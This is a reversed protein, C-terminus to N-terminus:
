LCDLPSSINRFPNKAIVHVSKIQVKRSDYFTNSHIALDTFFKCFLMKVSEETFFHLHDKNQRDKEIPIEVILVGNNKMVNAIDKVFNVVDTVHELTHYSLVLDFKNKEFQDTCFQQTLITIGYHKMGLEAIKANCEVGIVNHGRNNLEYLIRGESCGIELVNLPNDDNFGALEYISRMRSNIFTDWDGDILSIIGQHHKDQYWYSVDSYLTMLEDSDIERM